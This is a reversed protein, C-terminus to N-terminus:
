QKNLILPKMSSTTQEFFAAQRGELSVIMKVVQPEFEDVHNHQSREIYAAAETGKLYDKVIKCYVRRRDVNVKRESMAKVAKLQPLPSSPGYAGHFPLGAYGTETPVGFYQIHEATAPRFQAPSSLRERAGHLV